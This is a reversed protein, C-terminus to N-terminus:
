RREGGIRIFSQYSMQGSNTISWLKTGDEPLEQRQVLEKKELGVLLQCLKQWSLPWEAHKAHDAIAMPGNAILVKLATGELKTIKCIQMAMEERIREYEAALARDARNKEDIICQTRPDRM